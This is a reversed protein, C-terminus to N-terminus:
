TLLDGGPVFFPQDDYWAEVNGPTTKHNYVFPLPGYELIINRNFADYTCNTLNINSDDKFEDYAVGYDEDIIREAIVNQSINLSSILLLVSCIAISKKAIKGSRM